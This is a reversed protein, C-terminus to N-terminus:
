PVASYRFCCVLRLIDLKFIQNPVYRLNVQISQLEGKDPNKKGPRELATIVVM